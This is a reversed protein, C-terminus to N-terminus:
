SMFLMAVFIIAFAVFVFGLLQNLNRAFNAIVEAADARREQAKAIREMYESYDKELDM